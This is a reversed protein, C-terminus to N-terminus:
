ASSPMRSTSLDRPSPSTYLLCDFVMAGFIRSVKGNRDRLPLLLIRGRMVTRRLGRTATVPIEAVEPDDCVTQMVQALDDRGTASFLVSLPMGRADMGMLETVHKGAIRFRAITPAVRELVFCHAMMDDFHADPVDGQAPIPDGSRLKEWHAEAQLLIREGEVRHFPIRNYRLKTHEHSM